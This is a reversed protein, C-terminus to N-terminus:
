QLSTWVAFRPLFDSCFDHLKIWGAWCFLVCLEFVMAKKSSTWPFQFKWVPKKYANLMKIGDKIQLMGCAYDTIHSIVLIVTVAGAGGQMQPGTQLYAFFRLPKPSLTAWNMNWVRWGWHLWLECGRASSGLTHSEFLDFFYLCLLYVRYRTGCTISTSM